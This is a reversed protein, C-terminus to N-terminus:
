ALNRLLAMKLDDPDVPKPLFDNMGVAMCRARDEAFANATMAVIPLHAFEAQARIRRTAELGDMEPMQMDMLVLDYPQRAIAELAKVGNEATDTFLGFENLIESTIERNIPEDEVILVRRGALLDRTLGSSLGHAETATSLSASDCRKLTASFWFCSGGGPISRVGVDGGMLKALRRNIALGLGTGGYRRTTSNDAQEFIGFLRDLADSPIGIGTDEVEFHIKVNLNNRALTKARIVISGHETFKIANGAYNLLCQTLRTPDGLLREPFNEAEIRIELGKSRAPDGLVNQVQQLIDSISVGEEQLLLKGAEIKSIDLIDNLVALLHQSATSIKDLRSRQIDTPHDRRLLHVMGLVANLPTRIEHSMNALFTSKSRNASEAARRAEELEETRLRVQAELHNRYQELEREARVADSIDAFSVVAGALAEDKLNPAITMRALFSQGDKRWLLETSQRFLGDRCTQCVPCHDHSYRSGDERHHHILAHIDLGLLESETFHLLRCAAPNIFICRGEQDVGFVGEGLTDLIRQREGESARLAQEANVQRSIDINLGFISPHEGDSVVAQSAYVDVPKGDSRRLRQKEAPLSAQTQLLQRFRLEFLPRQAEPIILESISRGLVEGATYGFLHEAAHNWYRIKGKSNCAYIALTDLGEVITRFRAEAASLERMAAATRSREGKLRRNSRFLAITILTLGALTALTLLLLTGGFENIVESLTLHPRVDYPPLHLKRLLDDVPRYDAPITFGHIHLERAVRGGHPLSLISAAIQRAVDENLWPMAAIPWEPYLRTSVALPYAPSGGTNLVRLQEPDLKNERQMAEIVGTRVFAADVRKSLLEEIAKDQPQGTEVIRVDKGPDIGHNLLELAQAQYGGLSEISSVAIRRGRLEELTRPQGAEALTVIVGGFNPLGEDALEESLTALPSLLGEKRTLFIYHAPQTLILDAQRERAAQELEPYNLALLRVQHSELRSNLYDALPQWRRLTEPKPRFSLIALRIVQRESEGAATAAAPAHARVASTLALQLALWLLIALWYRM